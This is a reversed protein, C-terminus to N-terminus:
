EFKTKKKTFGVKKWLAQSMRRMILTAILMCIVMIGFRLTVEGAAVFHSNTEAVKQNYRSTIQSSVQYGKLHMKAMPGTPGWLWPVPRTEMWGGLTFKALNESTRPRNEPFIHIDNTSHQLLAIGPLRSAHWALCEANNLPNGCDVFGFQIGAEIAAESQSVQSISYLTRYCHRCERSVFVVLWTRGDDLLEILPPKGGGNLKQVGPASFEGRKM